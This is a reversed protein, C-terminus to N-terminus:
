LWSCRRALLHLPFPGYDNWGGVANFVDHRLQDLPGVDGLQSLDGLPEIGMHLLADVLKPLVSMPVPPKTNRISRTTLNPAVLRAFRVVTKGGCVRCREGHSYRCPGAQAARPSLKKTISPQTGGRSLFREKLRAPGACVWPFSFTAPM